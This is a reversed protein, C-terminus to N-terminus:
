VNRTEHTAIYKEARAIKDRYLAKKFGMYTDAVGLIHKWNTIHQNNTRDFFQRYMIVKEIGAAKDPSWRGAERMATLMDKLIIEQFVGMSERVSLGDKWAYGPSDASKQLWRITATQPNLTQTHYTQLKSLEKSVAHVGGREAAARDTSFDNRAPRSGLVNNVVRNGLTTINGSLQKYEQPNLAIWTREKTEPNFYPVSNPADKNVGHLSDHLFDLTVYDLQAQNVDSYDDAYLGHYEPTVARSFSNRSALRLVDYPPRIDPLGLQGPDQRESHTM